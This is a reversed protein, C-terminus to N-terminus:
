SPQVVADRTELLEYVTRACDQCLEYTKAVKTEQENPRHRDWERAPIDVAVACTEERKDVHWQKGCRDCEKKTAM